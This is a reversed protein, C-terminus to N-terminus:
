IVFATRTITHNIKGFRDIGFEFLEKVFFRDNDPRGSSCVQYTLVGVVVESENQRACDVFCNIKGSFSLEAQLYNKFNVLSLKQLYM